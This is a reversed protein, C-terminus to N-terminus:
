FRKVYGHCYPKKGNKDYYDQHYLEAEYFQKAATLETAIKYGKNNLLKILKEATQKQNPNNYFIMSRYQYGVDPGQRNIQTPDHIEFFLRCLTEFDTIKPDFIVKVTEVHGSKGKCVEQYTPNKTKGGMYGSIVSKVGKQKQLYYEVGWFCGGAFYAIQLHDKIWDEQFDLALSNVCYRTNKKTLYEGKFIHGLHGGCNACLIETRVGDADLEQKIAGPIQDDFSPWGCHSAFQDKSDFLLTNCRKCFYKGEKNNDWYEGSFPPETGKHIIIYEEKETLKNFTM